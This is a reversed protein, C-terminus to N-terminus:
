VGTGFGSASTRRTTTVLVTAAGAEDACGVVTELLPDHDAVCEAGHARGDIDAGCVLIPDGGGSPPELLYLGLRGTEAGGGCETVQIAAPEVRRPEAM